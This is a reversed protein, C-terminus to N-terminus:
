GFLRTRQRISMSPTHEAVDITAPVLVDLIEKWSTAMDAFFRLQDASFTRSTTDNSESVTAIAPKAAMNGALAAFGKWYAYARAVDNQTAEPKTPDAYSYGTSLQNDLFARVASHDDPLFWDVNLDGQPKLLDDATLRTPPM